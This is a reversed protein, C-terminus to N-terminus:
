GSHRRQRRGGQPRREKPQDLRNPSPEGGMASYLLDDKTVVRDRNYILHVLLDFMQPEMRDIEGSRRLERRTVDLIHDAFHFQM